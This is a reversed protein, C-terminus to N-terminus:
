ILVGVVDSELNRHQPLISPKPAADAGGSTATETMEYSEDAKAPASAAASAAAAQAARIKHKQARLHAMEADDLLFKQEDIDRSSGGGQAQNRFPNFPLQVEGQPASGQLEYENVDVRDHYYGDKTPPLEAQAKPEALKRIAGKEMAYFDATSAYPPLPGMSGLGEDGCDFSFRRPDADLQQPAEQPPIIPSEQYTEATAVPMAWDTFDRMVADEPVTSTKIVPTPTVRNPGYSVVTPGGGLRRKSPSPAPGLVPVGSSYHAYPTPAAHHDRMPAIGERSDISVSPAPTHLDMRCSPQPTLTPTVRNPGYSVTPLTASSLLRAATLEDRKSPRESPHSPPLLYGGGHPEIPSQQWTPSQGHSGSTISRVDDYGTSGPFGDFVPQIPMMPAESRSSSVSPSPPRPASKEPGKRSGPGGAAKDAKRRRRFYLFAVMAGIGLALAAIALGLGAKAGTSLSGSDSDTSEDPSTSLAASPTNTNTATPQSTPISPSSTSATTSSLPGITTQQGGLPRENPSLAFKASRGSCSDDAARLRFWCRDVASFNLHVLM